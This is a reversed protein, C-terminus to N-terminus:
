AGDTLKDALSDTLNYDQALLKNVEHLVAKCRQTGELKKRVGLNSAHSGM